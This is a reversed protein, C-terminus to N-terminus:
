RAHSDGLDPSSPFKCKFLLDEYRDRQAALRDRLHEIDNHSVYNGGFASAGSMALIFPWRAATKTTLPIM